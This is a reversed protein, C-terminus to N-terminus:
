EGAEIKRLPVPIVNSVPELDGVEVQSIREGRTEIKEVSILALRIDENSQSFHTQLKRMRDGLLSVDKMLRGVEAQIQDAAERMRADKQIQQVVQIALMLLTPSVVMVRARHAKQVVDDFGDHLEAYVSESPVFMLAVDQTEGPILYKSAIDDVHKTIDQRFRQAALKRLDETKAERYATVSELPFKSDIVLPRKDPLFVCCDPRKGNKLTHQFDYAGKPLGDQVIAEMRGQGFAGRSQKNSLVGQLSTVQSALDTINKQASDIVALREHLKTLHETTQQTSTHMSQGLRHTVADLRENVHRALEAQRGALMDGMAQVHVTTEGQLRQLEAMRAEAAPDDAPTRPWAVFVALAAIGLGAILGLAIFLATEM